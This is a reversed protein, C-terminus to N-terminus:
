GTLSLSGIMTRLSGVKASGHQYRALSGFRALIPRRFAALLLPFVRFVGVARGGSVLEIGGAEEMEGAM